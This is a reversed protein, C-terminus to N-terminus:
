RVPKGCHICRAADKPTKKGCHPCTGQFSPPAEKEALAAAGPPEVKVSLALGGLLYCAIETKTPKRGCLITLEAIIEAIM